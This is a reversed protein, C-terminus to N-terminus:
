VAGPRCALPVLQFHVNVRREAGFLRRPRALLSLLRKTSVACCRHPLDLYQQIALTNPPRTGAARPRATASRTSGSDFAWRRSGQIKLGPGLQM